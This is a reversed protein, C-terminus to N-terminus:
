VKKQCGIGLFLDEDPHHFTGLLKRLHGLSVSAVRNEKM